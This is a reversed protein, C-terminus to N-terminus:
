EESVTIYGEGNKFGIDRFYTIQSRFYEQNYNIKEIVFEILDESPNQAIFEKLLERQQQLIFNIESVKEIHSLIEDNLIKFQTLLYSTDLTTDGYRDIIFEKYKFM